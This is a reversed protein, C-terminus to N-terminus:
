GKMHTPTTCTDSDELRGSAVVRRPFLSWSRRIGFGVGWGSVWGSGFNPFQLTIFDQGLMIVEVQLECSLM